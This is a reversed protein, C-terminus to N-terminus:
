NFLYKPDYTIGQKKLFALVEEQFTVRRHHEEQGAIYDRVRGVQSKSVSFATYGTQWAFGSSQTWRRKVWGSSNTKVKEMVDALSLAAPQVFLMHVHDAPGNVLLSQGGLKNVTGGLYDLMETKVEPTLLPERDKTSFLAHIIVNTYTHAM